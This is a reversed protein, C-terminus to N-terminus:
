IDRRIGMDKLDRRANINEKSRSKEDVLTYWVNDYVYKEIHMFDLNHRM